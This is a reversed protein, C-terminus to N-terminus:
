QNMLRLQMALAILEKIVKSRSIGLKKAADDIRDITQQDLRITVTPYKKVFKTVFYLDHSNGRFTSRKMQRM